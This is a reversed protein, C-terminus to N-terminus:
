PLGNAGHTLYASRQKLQEYYAEVPPISPKEFDLAFWRNVNLGVPIDAATFTRGMLYPGDVSLADALRKMQVTWGEIGRRILEPDDSGPTKFLLGHVVPRIEAYMDTAAWDMWAEVRARTQLDTPLLDSREHKGCLYRVIAQSERLIVGDDDVVPVVGFASLAAFEPENTSRYGRGWDERTYAIGIEECTWLVKRVNISNARGFIRLM